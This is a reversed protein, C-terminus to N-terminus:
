TGGLGTTAVGRIIQRQFLMFVVVLPLGALIASAMVQAYRVGFSSQVQVLGVPLTMLEPDSTIIFPWLFNNWASIFVFIAVAALISRSLPVVVQWFIRFSGAGDVRAAEELETPIGDFFKKLIFVMAPAVLQPLIIGAFTDATGWSLMQRYLPVILIQPPIMIGAVTLAFLATRGRFRTRSFGYAAAASLAVTAATVVVAVVTSNVFWTVLDDDGLVARYAQLTFGSDPVVELPVTTTDAETKLSTLLAWALPALWLVALVALGTALAIRTLLSARQAKSPGQSTRRPPAAEADRPRPSRLATAAPVAM